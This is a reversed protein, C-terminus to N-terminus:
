RMENQKLRYTDHLTERANQVIKEDHNVCSNHNDGQPTTSTKLAIYEM